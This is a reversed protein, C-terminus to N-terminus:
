DARFTRTFGNVRLTYEGPPFTGPLAITQDFEKHIAACVDGERAGSRLIGLTVIPGQRQQELSYLFDCGSGLTGQVRALARTLGVTVEVSEIQIPAIVDGSSDPSLPPDGGCGVALVAVQGLLFWRRWSHM